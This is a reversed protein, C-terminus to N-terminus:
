KILTKIRDVQKQVNEPMLSKIKDGMTEAAGTLTKTVGTNDLYHGLYDEEPKEYDALSTVSLIVLSKPSPAFYYFKGETAQLGQKFGYGKLHTLLPELKKKITPDESPQSGDYTDIRIGNEVDRWSQIKDKDTFSNIVKKVDENKIDTFNAM